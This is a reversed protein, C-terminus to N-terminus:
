SETGTGASLLPGAEAEAVAEEEDGGEFESDNEIAAAGDDAPMGGAIARQMAEAAEFLLEGAERQSVEPHHKQLGAWMITRQLKMSVKGAGLKDIIDPLELGTEDEVAIWANADFCLKLKRGDALDVEAEGNMKNAM